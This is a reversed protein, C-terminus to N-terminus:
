AYHHPPRERRGFAVDYLKIVDAAATSQKTIFCSM